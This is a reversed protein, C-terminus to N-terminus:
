ATTVTLASRRFLNAGSGGPQAGGETLDDRTGAAGVGEESCAIPAQDLM